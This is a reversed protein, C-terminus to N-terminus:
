KPCLQFDRSQAPQLFFFTLTQNRQCFGRSFFCCVSVPPHRTADCTARNSGKVCEYLCKVTTITIWGNVTADYLQSWYLSCWNGSLNPWLNASRYHSGLCQKVTIVFDRLNDSLCTVAPADALWYVWACVFLYFVPFCIFCIYLNLTPAVKKDQLPNKKNSMVFLPPFTYGSPPLNEGPNDSSARTRRRSPFPQTYLLLPPTSSWSCHGYVSESKLAIM